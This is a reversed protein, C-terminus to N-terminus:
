YHLAKIQMDSYNCPWKHHIALWRIWGGQILGQPTYSITIITVTIHVTTSWLLSIIILLISFCYLIIIDSTPVHSGVLNQSYFCKVGACKCLPRHLQIQWKSCNLSAEPITSFDSLYVSRGLPLYLLHSITTM